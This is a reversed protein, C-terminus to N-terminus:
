GSLTDNLANSKLGCWQRSVQCRGLAGIIDIWTLGGWLCTFDFHVNELTKSHRTLFQYLHSGHCSFWALKLEKLCAFTLCTSPFLSLPKDLATEGIIELELKELNPFDELFTDVQVGRFSQLDVKISLHRVTRLPVRLSPLMRTSVGDQYDGDICCGVDLTLAELKLPARNHLIVSLITSFAQVSANCNLVLHDLQNAVFPQEPSCLGQPLEKDTISLRKCKELSGLARQITKLLKPHAISRSACNFHEFSNLKQVRSSLSLVELIYLLNALSRQEFLLFLTKLYPTMMDDVRKSFYEKHAVKRFNLLDHPPLLSLVMFMIETPLIDLTSPM